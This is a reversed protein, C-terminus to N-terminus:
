NRFKDRYEAPTMGCFKKFVDRFAKPDTYGVEYMIENVNKYGGELDKKAAEVRIRQIYEVITNSTAKKFRREFTRRGIAYKDSLDDVSLKLQFNDELFSQVDLILDDGHQKQGKFISFPLQSAKATDLLFFKSAMVAMEKSTFKEVLYLLLNWYSSAGGSSYIGNQETIIRDDALHVEPYMNRFDNAYLWHTSCSKGDLLGSSALLFAGVCLSAVESGNNYQKHLWPLYVENLKVSQAMDGSIAPIIVLDTKDIDELLKEPRIIVSGGNLTVEPAHGVLHVQFFPQHGASKYFENVANFMYSPDVIAAPIATEPVLISIHKMIM